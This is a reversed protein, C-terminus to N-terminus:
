INGDLNKKTKKQRETATENIQEWYIQKKM